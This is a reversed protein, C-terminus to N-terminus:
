RRRAFLPAPGRGPAADRQLRAPHLDALLMAVRWAALALFRKRMEFVTLKGSARCSCGGVLLVIGVVNRALLVEGVPYANVVLLKFDSSAAFVATAAIM